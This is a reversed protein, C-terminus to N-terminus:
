ITKKIKSRSTIKDNKKKKQGSKQKKFSHVHFRGTFMPDDKEAWRESLIKAMIKRRRKKKKFDAAEFRDAFKSVVARVRDQIDPRGRFTGEM